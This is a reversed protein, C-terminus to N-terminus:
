SNQRNWAEALTKIADQLHLNQSVLRHNCCKLVVEYSGPCRRMIYEPDQKCKRCIAIQCGSIVM